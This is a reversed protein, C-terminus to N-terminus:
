RTINRKRALAGWRDVESSLLKGFEAPTSSTATLGDGALHMDMGPPEASRHHVQQAAAVQPDGKLHEVQQTGCV